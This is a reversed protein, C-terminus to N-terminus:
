HTKMIIPERFTNVMVGFIKVARFTKRSLAKFATVGAFVALKTGCTPLLAFIEAASVGRIDDVATSNRGSLLEQFLEAPASPSFMAFSVACNKFHCRNLKSLIVAPELVIM